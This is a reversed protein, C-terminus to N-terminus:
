RALIYKEWTNNLQAFNHSTERELAVTGGEDRHWFVCAAENTLM